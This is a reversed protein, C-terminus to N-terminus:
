AKGKLIKKWRGTDKPDAGSNAKSSAVAPQANKNEREADTLMIALLDRESQCSKLQHQLDAITAKMEEM